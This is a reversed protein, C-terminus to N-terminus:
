NSPEVVAAAASASAASAAAADINSMDVQSSERKVRSFPNFSTALISDGFVRVPDSSNTYVGKTLDSGSQVASKQANDVSTDSFPVEVYDGDFFVCRLSKKYTYPTRVKYDMTNKKLFPSAKKRCKSFQFWNVILFVDGLNFM